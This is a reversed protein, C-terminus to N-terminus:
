LVVALGLAERAELYVESLAFDCLEEEAGRTGTQAVVRVATCLDNCVLLGARDASRALSRAWRSLNLSSKERSIRAVLERLRVQSEPALLALRQRLLEISGDPDDVTLGPVTLVMAGLLFGKLTRSPLAGGAARGPWLYTAARGLRFALAARDTEALAQPGCLLVPPETGGVHAEAGFDARRYIPPPAVRFLDCVYGLVRQFVEPVEDPRVRDLESVELDGLTFPHLERVVPALLAFLEGLDPDDDPHRLRQWLAPDLAPLRVLFRPRCTRLLDDAAPLETVGRCACAMAAVLAADPRGASAHLNFLLRGPTPDDPRLRWWARLARATERWRAPDGATVEAFAQQLAPEDPALRCAIEFAVRASEFDGMRTRYIEALNWWLRLLLDNDGSEGVRHILKRYQRELRRWDKRRTHIQEIAGFAELRAPDLDVARELHTLADDDDGCEAAIRGAFDHASALEADIAFAQGLHGHVAELGSRGRARFIAWAAHAHYDAADPNKEAAQAFAAAAAAFDGTALRAAGDHFLIEAALPDVKAAARAGPTEPLTGGIGIRRDYDLRQVPDSLVDYARRYIVHLEELRGYDRGLDLGEFDALRFRRAAAGYAAAIEDPSAEPGVGLVQYFDKDHIELYTKLILQRARGVRPDAPPSPPVHTVPTFARMREPSPPLEIVGSEPLDLPQQVVGDGADRISAAPPAQPVPAVQSAESSVGFLEDYLSSTPSPAPASAAPAAPGPTTPEVLNSLALPDAQPVVDTIAAFAATARIGGPASPAGPRLAAPAEELEAMGTALLADVGALLAIAGKGQRLLEGVLPRPALAGLAEPGFVKVFSDRHREARPTLQVRAGARTALQKAIEDDHATRKLGTLVLAVPELTAKTIRDSFSDGPTVKFEGHPWRLSSVVKLRVLAALHKIVDEEKLCGLKVLAQGLKVGERKSLGLAEQHKEEDILRRAVLYHGLTEQRVNSEAGIPHGVLFFVEKRVRDRRLVLTATAQREFLDLLLRALPRQALDGQEDGPAVVPVGRGPTLVPVRPAPRTQEEEGRAKDAAIRSAAKVLDRVQFPKQFFAAGFEDRLRRIVSVDKYVASLAILATEKGYPKARIGRCLGFGDLRPMLLDTVVLDPREKDCLGLAEQGDGATLVDDIQGALEPDNRFLAELIRRTHKDDEVVLIKLGM